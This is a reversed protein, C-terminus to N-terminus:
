RGRISSPIPWSSHSASSENRLERGKRGAAAELLLERSVEERTEMEAPTRTERLQRIESDHKRIENMSAELLLRIRELSDTALHGSIRKAAKDFPWSLPMRSAIGLVAKTIPSVASDELEFQKRLADFELDDIPM